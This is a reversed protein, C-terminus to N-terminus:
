RYLRPVLWLEKQRGNIYRVKEGDFFADEELMIRIDKSWEPIPVTVNLEISHATHARLAYDGKGPVGGQQDWLGITPGAGHGHFGLPHTYISPKLGEAVAKQLSSALIQNGTRGTEFESTLIDQLRNGKALARKLGEPADTEGPRLIYAHQQTDTNLGLYAIGIDVHVLDGPMIVSASAPKSFGERLASDPRQVSVSPHFWTSLKLGRIRERFWWQVDATTTVGPQIVKESFGEAIITHAMQMIQPYVVMEEALRTELWGIALNEGSVLRQRYKKSLAAKMAELESWAMGDALAFNESTNVAIRKPKHDKILNALAKYQNPQKEKDWAKAFFEGIDYRAVALREIGKDKGRDSFILITRRRASFWTAPLMTKVVPDENYERAVLIWMDINQERMLKPVIQQLRLMLWQDELQARERMPLIHPMEPLQQQGFAELGMFLLLITGFKGM